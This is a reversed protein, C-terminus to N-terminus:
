CPRTAGAAAERLMQSTSYNVWHHLQAASPAHRHEWQLTGPLQAELHVPAAAVPRRRQQQLQGVEGDIVPRQHTADRRRIWLFKRKM